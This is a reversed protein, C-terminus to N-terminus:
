SARVVFRHLRDANDNRGWWYEHRADDEYGHREFKQARAKALQRAADYGDPSAAVPGIVIPTSDPRSPWPWIEEVVAVIM